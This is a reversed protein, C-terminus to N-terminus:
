SLRDVLLNVCTKYFERDSRQASVSEISIDLLQRCSAEELANLLKRRPEEDLAILLKAFKINVRIEKLLTVQSQAYTHVLDDFFREMQQHIAPHSPMLKPLTKLLVEPAFWLCKQTFLTNNLISNLWLQTESVGRFRRLLPRELCAPKVISELITVYLYRAKSFDGSEIMPSLLDFIEKTVGVMVNSCDWISVSNKAQLFKFDHTLMSVILILLRRKAEDNDILDYDRYVKKRSEARMTSLDIKTEIDVSFKTYPAYDLVMQVFYRGNTAICAESEVKSLIECFYRNHGNLYICQLDLRRREEVPLQHLFNYFKYYAQQAGSMQISDIDTYLGSSYLSGDILNKVAMVTSLSIPLDDVGRCLALRVQKAFRVHSYQARDLERKTFPMPPVSSCNYFTRSVKFHNSSNDLLILASGDESVIYHSLPYATLCGLNVPDTDHTVTPMLFGYYNKKIHGAGCLLQALRIWQSNAKGQLRTYDEPGGQIELWRLRYVEGVSKVLSVDIETKGQLQKLLLIIAAQINSSATLMLENIISKLQELKFFSGVKRESYIDKVAMANATLSADFDCLWGVLGFMKERLGDDNGKICDLLIDILYIDKTGVRIKQGYLCNVDVISCEQLDKSCLLLLKLYKKPEDIPTEELFYQEVVGFLSQVIYGIVEGSLHWTPAVKQILYNWFSEVNEGKSRIRFLELLTLPRPNYKDRGTHANYTSLSKKQQKLRVVLGEMSYLTKEDAGFYLGSLDECDVLKSFIIPDVTNTVAPILIQLYTKGIEEALDLALSVWHKNNQSLNVTYDESTDVINEWREAFLQQIDQLQQSSLTDTSKFSLLQEDIKELCIKDFETLAVGARLLDNFETIRQVLM